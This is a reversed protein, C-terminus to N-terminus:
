SIDQTKPVCVQNPTHALDRRGKSQEGLADLPEAFVGHRGEDQQRDHNKDAHEGQPSGIGFDRLVADAVARLRTSLEACCAKYYVERGRKVSRLIGADRLVGLHRSVVSLDVSQERAIQGVSMGDDVMDRLASFPVLAAAASWYAENEM